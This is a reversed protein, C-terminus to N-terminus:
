PKGAGGGNQRLPFPILNSHDQTQMKAGGHILWPATPWHSRWGGEGGPAGETPSGLWGTYTHQPQLILGAAATLFVLLELNREHAVTEGM